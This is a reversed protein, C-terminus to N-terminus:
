VVLLGVVQLDRLLRNPVVVEPALLVSSVVVVALRSAQLAMVAGAEAAAVTLAVAETGGLAELETGRVLDVVGVAIAALRLAELLLFHVVSCPTQQELVVRQALLPQLAM